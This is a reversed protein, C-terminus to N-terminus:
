RESTDRIVFIIEGNQVIAQMVQPCEGQAQFRVGEGGVSIEKGTDMSLKADGNLSNLAIVAELKVVEIGACEKRRM